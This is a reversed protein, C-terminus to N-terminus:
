RVVGLAQREIWRVTEALAAKRTPYFEAVLGAGNVFGDWRTEPTGGDANPDTLRCIRFRHGMHDGEYEATEATSASVRRLTPTTAKVAAGGAIEKNLSPLDALRNTTM